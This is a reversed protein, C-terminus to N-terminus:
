EKKHESIFILIQEKRRIGANAGIEQIKVAPIACAFIGCDRLSKKDVLATIFGAVFNDGAGATDVLNVKYTPVMMSESRTKILCGNKDRKFVVHKVGYNLLCDVMDDLTEKGTFIRTKDENTFLYDFNSFTEGM